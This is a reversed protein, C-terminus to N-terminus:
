FPVASSPSPGPSTTEELMHRLHPLAPPVQRSLVRCAAEHDLPTVTLYHKVGARDNVTVVHYRRPEQVPELMGELAGRAVDAMTTGAAACAAKYADRRDRNVRVLIEVDLAAAGGNERTRM